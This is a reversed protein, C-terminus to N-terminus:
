LWTGFQCTSIGATLEWHHGANLLVSGLQRYAKNNMNAQMLIDLVHDSAKEDINPAGSNKLPRYHTRTFYIAITHVQFLIREWMRAINAGYANCEVDVQRWRVQKDRLKYTAFQSRARGDCLLLNSSLGSCGSHCKQWSILVWVWNASGYAGLALGGM